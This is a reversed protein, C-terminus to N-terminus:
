ASFLFNQAELNGWLIHRLFCVVAVFNSIKTYNKELSFNGWVSVSICTIADVYHQVYAKGNKIPWGTYAHLHIYICLLDIPNVLSPVTLTLRNRIISFCIHLYTKWGNGGEVKQSINQVVASCSLVRFWNKKQPKTKNEYTRLFIIDSSQRVKWVLWLWFHYIGM